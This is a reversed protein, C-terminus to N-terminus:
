HPQKGVKVRKVVVVKRSHRQGDRWVSTWQSKQVIM